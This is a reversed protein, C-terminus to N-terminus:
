MQPSPTQPPAGMPPATSPAPGQPGSMSQMVAAFVQMVKQIQEPQLGIQTLAQNIMQQKAPSLGQEPPTGAGPPAMHAQAVGDAAQNVFNMDM